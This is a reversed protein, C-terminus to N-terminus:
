WTLEDPDPLYRDGGESDDTALDPAVASSLSSAEVELGGTLRAFLNFLLGAAVTALTFLVAGVVTLLATLVLVAVVPHQQLPTLQHYVRELQLLERPRLEPTPLTIGAVSQGSPWPSWPALADLWAWVSRGAWVALIGALLAGPLCLMWGCGM